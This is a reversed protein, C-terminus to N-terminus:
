GSTSCGIWNSILLLHLSIMTSSVLSNHDEVDNAIQTCCDADAASTSYGGVFVITNLLVHENTHLMLHSKDRLQLLTKKETRSLNITWDNPHVNVFENWKSSDFSTKYWINNNIIAILNKNPKTKTKTSFNSIFQLLLFFQRSHKAWRVINKHTDRFFGLHQRLFTCLLKSGGVMMAMMLIWRFASKVVIMVRCRRRMRITNIIGCWGCWCCNITEFGDAFWIIIHMQKVLVLWVIFQIFRYWRAFGICIRQTCFIQCCAKM